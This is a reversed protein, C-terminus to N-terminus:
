CVSRENETEPPGRLLEVSGLSEMDSEIDSEERQFLKNTISSLPSFFNEIKIDHAANNSIGSDFVPLEQLQEM